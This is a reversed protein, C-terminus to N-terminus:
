GGIFVDIYWYNDIDTQYSKLQSRVNKPAYIFFVTEEYVPCKFRIENKYVIINDVLCKSKIKKFISAMNSDSIEIEKGDLSEIIKGDVEAIKMGFNNGKYTSLYPEKTLIIEVAEEYLYRNKNFLEIVKSKTRTMYDHVSLGGVSFLVIILILVVRRLIKRKFYLAIAFLIFLVVLIFIYVMIFVLKFFGFM